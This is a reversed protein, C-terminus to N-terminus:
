AEQGRETAVFDMEICLGWNLLVRSHASTISHTVKMQNEPSWTLLDPLVVSLSIQECM